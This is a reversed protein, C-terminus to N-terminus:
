DITSFREVLAQAKSLQLKVLDPPALFQASDMHKFVWFGFEQFSRPPLNLSYDIYPYEKQKNKKPTRIRQSPHRCEGELIFNVVPPFFRVKVETFSLNGCRELYQEEPKGLYLGWGTKLLKQAVKLSAKQKEIGRQTQSVIPCYNKFRDLRGIALHNTEGSNYFPSDEEFLLYWAVDYYILQLPYVQKSGVQGSQYHDAFRYLEIKNGLAIAEEVTDLCEYLTGQHYKGKARKEESDTYIIARNLYARIPYFLDEGISLDLGRLRKELTRYCAVIKSDRQYEAQSALANFALKLEEQSLAGTGLYYGWRYMKQRLLGYDRLTALDSSITSASPYDDPLEFNLTKALLQLKDRILAKADHEGKTSKETATGVGPFNALTAILLMIRQFSLEDAYPHLKPPKAM